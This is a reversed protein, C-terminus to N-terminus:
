TAVQWVADHASMYRTKLTKFGSRSVPVEAGGELQVRCGESLWEAHHVGVIYQRHLRVFCCPSGAKSGCLRRELEALSHFVMMMRGDHLHMEAYKDSSKFYLIEELRIFAYGRAAKLMIRTTHM